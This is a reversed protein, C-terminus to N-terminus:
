TLAKRVMDICQEPESDLMGSTFRLLRWGHLTMLNYKRCDGEYGAGRTHRGQNYVGGELEIALKQNPYAFDFSYRRGPIGKYEREYAPLDQGYARLILSFKSELTSEYKM